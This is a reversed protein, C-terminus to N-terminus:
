DKITGGSFDINNSQLVNAVDTVTVGFAAMKQPDLWIRMAYNSAGYIWVGGMGPVKQLVPAIVQTTYDRIQASTLNPDMFGINLVPRDVSGSTVVPVNADPPLLQQVSAVADRVDGLAKVLNTGPAFRLYIYSNHFTSRSSMDQLGDINILANELNRTVQSEMVDPSAGAYYDSVTAYPEEIQPFYRTEIHSYGIWGFVILALSLVTAFVPREICVQVWKM